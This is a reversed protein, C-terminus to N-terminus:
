FHGECNFVNLQEGNQGLDIDCGCYTNLYDIVQGYGFGGQELPRLAVECTHPELERLKHIGNDKFACGFLCLKCGTRLTKGDLGYTGDENKVAKGYASFLPIEPFKYYYECVDQFTWFGMPQAKVQGNAIVNVCGHTMYQHERLQSEEAMLGTVSSRGLKELEHQPQKKLFACCKNSVKFPAWVLPLWRKAITFKKSRKWGDNSEFGGVIAVATTQTLGHRILWKYSERSGDARTLVDQMSLGAETIQARARRIYEATWKSAVPYGEEELVKKFTKKPQTIVLKVEIGYKEGTTKVFSKVFDVMGKYEMGTNAFGVYLPEDKHKTISWTHAVLDLIIGSDKGGSYAVYINGNTINITQLIKAVSLQIKDNLPLARMEKLQEDTIYFEGM